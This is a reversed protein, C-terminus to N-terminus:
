CSCGPQDDCHGQKKTVQKWSNTYIPEGRSGREDPRDARAGNNSSSPSQRAPNAAPNEFNENIELSDNPM